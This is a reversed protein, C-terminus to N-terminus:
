LLQGPVKQVDKNALVTGGPQSLDFVFATLISREDLTRAHRHIGMESYSGM